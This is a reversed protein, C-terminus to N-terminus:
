LWTTRQNLLFNQRNVSKGFCKTTMAMKEPKLMMVFCTQINKIEIELNTELETLRDEATKIKEKFDRGAEILAARKDAEATRVAEAAEKALRRLEETEQLAKNKEESLKQVISLDIEAGRRKNNKDFLDPNQLLLKIDIMTNKNQELILKEDLGIIDYYLFL